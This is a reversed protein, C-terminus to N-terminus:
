PGAGREGASGSGTVAPGSAGPAAGPTMGGSPGAASASPIARPGPLLSDLGRGLARRKDPAANRDGAHPPPAAQTANAAGTAGNETTGTAPDVVTIKEALTTM